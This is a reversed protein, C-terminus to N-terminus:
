EWEDWYIRAKVIRKDDPKAQLNPDTDTRLFKLLHVGNDTLTYSDPRGNEVRYSRVVGEGCLKESITPEYFDEIYKQLNNFYDYPINIIMSTLSSFVEPTIQEYLRAKFISALVDGKEINDISTFIKAIKDGQFQVTLKDIENILDQQQDPSLQDFDVDKIVRLCKKFFANQHINQRFENVNVVTSAVGSPDLDRLSKLFSIAVKGPTNGIKKLTFHNINQSM